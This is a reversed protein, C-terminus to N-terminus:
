LGQDRAVVSPLYERDTNHIKRINDQAQAISYLQFCIIEPVGVVPITMCTLRRLIQFFDAEGVCLHACCGSHCKTCMAFAFLECAHQALEFDGDAHMKWRM